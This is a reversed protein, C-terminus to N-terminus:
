AGRGADQGRAGVGADMAPFRARAGVGCGVCRCWRGPRAVGRDVKAIDFHFRQLM